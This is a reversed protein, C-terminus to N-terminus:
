TRRVRHLMGNRAWGNPRPTIWDAVKAGERELCDVDGGACSSGAAVHRLYHHYGNSISDLTLTGYCKAGVKWTGRTERGNVVITIREHRTNGNVTGTLVGTWRGTLPGHPTRVTAASSVAATVGALVAAVVLLRRM